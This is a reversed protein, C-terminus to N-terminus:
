KRFLFPSLINTNVLELKRHLSLCFSFVQGKRPVPAQLSVNSLRRQDAKPPPPPARQPVLPSPPTIARQPSLNNSSTSGPSAPRLTRWEELTPQPLPVAGRPLQMHSRSEPILPMRPPIAPPVDESNSSPDDNTQFESTPDSTSYTLKSRRAPKRVKILPIDLEKCLAAPNRSPDNVLPLTTEYINDEEDDEEEKEGAQQVLTQFVPPTKGQKPPVPPSQSRNVGLSTLVIHPGPDSRRRYGEAILVDLCQNFKTKDQKLEASGDVESFGRVEEQAEEEGESHVLEYLESEEEEDEEVDIEEEEEVEEEEEGIESQGGDEFDVPVWILKMGPHQIHCVCGCSPDCRSLLDDPNHEVEPAEGGGVLEVEVEKGDPEADFSLSMNAAHASRITEQTETTLSFPKQKKIIIQQM